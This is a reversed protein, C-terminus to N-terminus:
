DVLPCIGSLQETGRDHFSDRKSRWKFAKLLLLGFSATTGPRCTNNRLKLM